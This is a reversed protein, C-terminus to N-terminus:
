SKKGVAPTHTRTKADLMDGQTKHDACLYEIAREATSFWEILQMAYALGIGATDKLLKTQQQAFTPTL